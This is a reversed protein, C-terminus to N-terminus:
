LSGHASDAQQTFLDHIFQDMLPESLYITENGKIRSNDQSPVVQWLTIPTLDHKKVLLVLIDAQSVQWNFGENVNMPIKTWYPVGAKLFVAKGPQYEM